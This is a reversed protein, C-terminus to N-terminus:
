VIQWNIIFLFDLNIDPYKLRIVSQSTLTFSTPKRFWNLWGFRFNCRPNVKYCAVSTVLFSLPIRKQSLKKWTSGVFMKKSKPFLRICVKYGHYHYQLLIAFDKLIYNCISLAFHRFNFILTTRNLIQAQRTNQNKPSISSSSAWHSVPIQWLSFFSTIDLWSSTSLM